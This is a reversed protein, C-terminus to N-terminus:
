RPVRFRALNRGPAVLVDEVLGREGAGLGVNRRRMLGPIQDEGEERALPETWRDSAIVPEEAMAETPVEDGLAALESDGRRVIPERDQRAEKGGGLAGEKM